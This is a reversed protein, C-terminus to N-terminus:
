EAPAPAAIPAPEEHEVAAPVPEPEDPCALSVAGLTLAIGTVVGALFIMLKSQM